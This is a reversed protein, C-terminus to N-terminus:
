MTIVHDSFSLSTVSCDEEEHDEEYGPLKFAKIMNSATDTVVHDVKGSIDFHLTINEYEEYINEATHRGKFRNCCLLVSELKWNSIYHGTIGTYSKM